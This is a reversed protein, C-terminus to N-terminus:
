GSTKIVSSLSVYKTEARTFYACGCDVSEEKKHEPLLTQEQPIKNKYRHYAQFVPMHMIYARM